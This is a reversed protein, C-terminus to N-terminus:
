EERISQAISMQGMSWAPYLGALLAAVIAVLAAQWFYGPTIQMQLTWGFSRVNIVYILIWALVFGLPMALLGAVSGMLGTELLTMGWLQQTTMGNARLIGIERSRELQLSLLASLVGIFAVIIALLRLAQTIAFTRDFIDLSTQRLSQNSQILVDDRGTFHKQLNTVVEDVSLGPKVFAGISAIADDKWLETYPDNDLIITGQDSSYDYFVAIVPFSQEGKPTNLRISEPPVEINEKLLLAESIIVGNGEDLEIWPDVGPTRQWAYPRQGQSVDGEASIIKARHEIQKAPTEDAFSFGTVTVDADNYTVVENLEPWQRIDNVM